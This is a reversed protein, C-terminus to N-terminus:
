QPTTQSGDTSGLSANIFALLSEYFAVRNQQAFFGHGEARHFIWQPTNGANQLAERMAEAQFAPARRDEGGHALLVPVRIQGAMNVPSQQRLVEADTGVAQALYRDGGPLFPIDSRSLENLDYVGAYGVACQYDDPYRAAAALAAFAGYSAGYICVREADAHGAQIAWRMALHLDDVMGSGWQGFGRQLYDFGFGGSGRFNAQLVAYGHRALYQAERNFFYTDRIGIPGGHPIVILPLPTESGEPKTLYGSLVFDDPSRIAFAEVKAMNDVSLDANLGGLYTMQRAQNDLLYFEGVRQPGFVGVLSRTGDRSMSTVKVQEGPFSADLGRQLAVEPHESFYHAEFVHGVFKAGLIEDRASSLVLDARTVDFDPHVFMEALRNGEVDYRYLASTGHESRQIFYFDDNERSFGVFEFGGELTPRIFQESIDQWDDEGSRRFRVQLLMDDDTASALRVEGQHDSHLQGWPLPSRVESMLNRMMSSRNGPPRNDIDLLFSSPRSRSVSNRDVEYRTVRIRDPEAPLMNEIFFAAFDGVGPGVMQFKRTNDINLGFIEGTLMPQELGGLLRHTAIVMRENTAWHFEAVGTRSRTAFSAEVEGSDIDVIRLAVNDEGPFLMALHQGDPSLRIDQITNKRFYTDADAPQAMLTSSHCLLLVVLSVVVLGSPRTM